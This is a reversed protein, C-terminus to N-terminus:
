AAFAHRSTIESLTQLSTASPGPTAGADILLTAVALRSKEVVTDVMMDLVNRPLEQPVCSPAPWSHHPTEKEHCQRQQGGSPEDLHQRELHQVIEEDDEDDIDEDNESDDSSYESLFDADVDPWTSSTGSAELMALAEATVLPTPPVADFVSLMPAWSEATFSPLPPVVGFPVNSTRPRSSVVELPTRGASDVDHVNAGNTLLLEFVEADCALRAASCLPPEWDHDFFPIAAADPDEALSVQVGVVSNRHLERLLAPMRAM